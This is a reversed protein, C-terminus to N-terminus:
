PHSSRNTSQFHGFETGRGHRLFNSRRQDKEDPHIGVMAPSSMKKGAPLAYPQKGYTVTIDVKTPNILEILDQSDEFPMPQM